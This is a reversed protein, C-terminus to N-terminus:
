NSKMDKCGMMCFRWSDTNRAYTDNCMSECQGRPSNEFRKRKDEEKWEKELEALKERMYDRQMCAASVSINKGDKATSNYKQIRKTLEEDSPSECLYEAISRREFMGENCGELNKDKFCSKECYEGRNDVKRDKCMNLNYDGGLAIRLFIFLVTSVIAFILYRKASVPNPKRRVAALIFGILPIIFFEISLGRGSVIHVIIYLYIYLVISAVAFFLYRKASVPNSKRKVAALIFAIPPVIFFKISLGSGTAIAFVFLSYHLFIISAVAIFLYRKASIPKSKWNVAALIFGIPVILFSLISLGITPKDETKSNTNGEETKPNTNGEETKSNTNGENQPNTPENNQSTDM